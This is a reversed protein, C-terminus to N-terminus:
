PRHLGAAFRQEVLLTFLHVGLTIDEIGKTNNACMQTFLTTERM